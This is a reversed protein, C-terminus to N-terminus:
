DYNGELRKIIVELQKSYVENLFYEAEHRLRRLKNISDSQMMGDLCNVCEDRNVKM